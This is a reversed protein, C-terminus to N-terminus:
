AKGGDVGNGDTAGDHQRRGRLYKLATSAVLFLVIVPLTLAFQLSVAAVPDCVASTTVQVVISAMMAAPAVVKVRPAPATM